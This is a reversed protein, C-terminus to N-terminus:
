DCSRIHNYHDCIATALVRKAEEQKIVYRDLHIKVDRPKLDFELIKDRQRVKQPEEEQGSGETEAQPTKPMQIVMKKLTELFEKQTNESDSKDAM